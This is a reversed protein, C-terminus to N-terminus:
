TRKLHPIPPLQPLHIQQTQQPLQSGEYLMQHNFLSTIDTPGCSRTQQGIPVATHHMAPALQSVPRVSTPRRVAAAQQILEESNLGTIGHIRNVKRLATSQPTQQNRHILPRTNSISVPLNRWQTWQSTSCLLTAEVVIFVPCCDQEM